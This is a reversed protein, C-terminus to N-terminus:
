SGVLQRDSEGRGRASQARGGGSGRSETETDAAADRGRPEKIVRHRVVGDDIRLAHELGEILSPPGTFQLLHYEAQTRHAIPYALTRVGWQQEGVLTGQATIAARADALVKARVEDEAELDLMLVLDYIPAPKAM